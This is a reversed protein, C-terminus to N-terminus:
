LEQLAIPPDPNHVHLFIVFLFPFFLFTRSICYRCYCCYKSLIQPPVNCM